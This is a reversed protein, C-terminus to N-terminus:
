KSFIYFDRTNSGETASPNIVWSIYLEGVLVFASQDYIDNRGECHANNELKTIWNNSYKDHNSHVEQTKNKVINRLPIDLSKM